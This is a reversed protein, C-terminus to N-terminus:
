DAFSLRPQRQHAPGNRQWRSVWRNADNEFPPASRNAFGEESLRLLGKNEPLADGRAAIADIQFPKTLYDFTGARLCNIASDITPYGTVVIISATPQYERVWGLVKESELGPIIYDLIVIHYPRTQLQAEMQTPEAMVDIMFDKHSLATQMIRAVSPDDDLILIHVESSCHLDKEREQTQLDDTHRDLKEFNNMVLDTPREEVRLSVM